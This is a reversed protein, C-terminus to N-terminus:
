FKLNQRNRILESFCFINNIENSERKIQETNTRYERQIRVTNIASALNLM